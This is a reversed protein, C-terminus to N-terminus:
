VERLCHEINTLILDLIKTGRTPKDVVQVLYNDQFSEIFTIGSADGVMTEWNVSRLNCDGLIITQMRNRNVGVPM